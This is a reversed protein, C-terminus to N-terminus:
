ITQDYMTGDFAMLVTTESAGADKKAIGCFYSDVGATGVPDPAVANLAVIFYLRDGALIAGGSGTVKAAEVQRCRYVFCIEEGVAERDKIFFGFVDQVVAPDGALVAIVPAVNWLEDYVINDKWLFIKAM